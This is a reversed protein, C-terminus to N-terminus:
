APGDANGRSGHWEKREIGDLPHATGSKKPPIATINGLTTRLLRPPYIMPHSSGVSALRRGPEPGPGMRTPTGGAPPIPHQEVAQLRSELSSPPIVPIPTRLFPPTRYPM